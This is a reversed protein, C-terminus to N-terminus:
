EVADEVADKINEGADRIGENPRADLGDKVKDEIKEGTTEPQKNCAVSSTIVFACALIQFYKTITM